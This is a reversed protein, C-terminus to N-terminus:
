PSPDPKGKKAAKRRQPKVPRNATVYERLAARYHLLREDPPADSLAALAGLTPKAEKEWQQFTRLADSSLPRRFKTIRAYLAAAQYRNVANPQAEPAKM